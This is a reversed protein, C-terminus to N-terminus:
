PTVPAWFYGIFRKYDGRDAKRPDRIPIGAADVRTPPMGPMRHSWSGDRNRRYFHYDAQRIEGGTLKNSRHAKGAMAVAYFGAKPKKIDRARAPILGDHEVAKAWAHMLGRVYKWYTKRPILYVGHHDTKGRERQPTFNQKPVNKGARRAFDGPNGGMGDINLAYSYCNGNISYEGATPWFLPGELGGRDLSHQVDARPYIKGYPIGAERLAAVRATAAHFSKSFCSRSRRHKPRLTM